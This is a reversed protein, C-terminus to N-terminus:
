FQVNHCQSKTVNLVKRSEVPATKAQFYYYTIIIIIHREAEAKLMQQDIESTDKGYKEAVAKREELHKVKM